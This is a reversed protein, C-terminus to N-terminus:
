GSLSGVQQHGVHVVHSRKKKSLLSKWQRGPTRVKVEMTNKRHLEFRRPLGTFWEVVAAPSDDPRLVKPPPLGIKKGTRRDRKVPTGPVVAYRLEFGASQGEDAGFRELATRVMARADMDRSVEVGKYQAGPGDIAGADYVRYFVPEADQPLPPLESDADTIEPDSGGVKEATEVAPGPRALSELINTMDGTRYHELLMDALERSSPSNLKDKAARSYRSTRDARPTPAHNNM